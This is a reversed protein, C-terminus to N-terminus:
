CCAGVECFVHPPPMKVVSLADKKSYVKQKTYNAEMRVLEGVTINMRGSTRPVGRAIVAEADFPASSGDPNEPDNPLAFRIDPDISPNKNDIEKVQESSFTVYSLGRSVVEEGYGGTAGEDLILGDYDYGKEEIFEQLDMGDTWDPLGSDALPAGTGYKRYYENLFIKREAHNRTDFPKTINLYVKYTKPNSATKGTSISSAGPHQYQDAYAANPTFYSGSRFTTHTGNPTGHYMVMLNGNEDLVKSDAFYERQGASLVNGESDTEPLAYRKDLTKEPKSNVKEGFDPISNMPVTNMSSRAEPTRILAEANTPQSIHQKEVSASGDHDAIDAARDNASRKINVIDYFTRRDDKDIAILMEGRFDEGDLNFVVEFRDYGNGNHNHPHKADEHGIFKGASVIKDLETSAQMKAEYIGDESSYIGQTYKSATYERESIKTFVTDSVRKGRFHTRMYTRVTKGYDKRDVGDFIGRDTDIIVKGDKISFRTNETDTVQMNGDNMSTVAKKIGDQANNGQNYASLRDFLKKYTRLLKRSSKSLGQDM